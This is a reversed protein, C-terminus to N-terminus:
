LNIPALFTRAHGSQMMRNSLVEPTMPRDIMLVPSVIPRMSMQACREGRMVTQRVASLNMLRVFVPGKFDPDVIGTFTLINRRAMSSRGEIILAYSRPLNVAFKLDIDAAQFPELVINKPSLLDIAASGASHRVPLLASTEEPGDVPLLVQTHAFNLHNNLARTDRRM